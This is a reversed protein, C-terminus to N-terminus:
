TFSVLISNVAKLKRSRVFSKDKRNSSRTRDKGSFLSCKCDNRPTGIQMSTGKTVKYAHGYTKSIDNKRATKTLKTTTVINSRGGSSKAYPTKCKCSIFGHAFYGRNNKAM